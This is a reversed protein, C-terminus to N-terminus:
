LVEETPVAEPAGCEESEELLTGSCSDNPVRLPQVMAALSAQWEHAADLTAHKLKEHLRVVEGIVLTAPAEIHARRVEESITALNGVVIQQGPWFAMQVVAAPTDSSRGAGILAQAIHAVNHVGMLIVLTDV